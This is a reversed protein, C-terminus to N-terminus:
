TGECPRAVMVVVWTWFKVHDWVCVRCLEGNGGARTGHCGSNKRDANSEELSRMLPIM